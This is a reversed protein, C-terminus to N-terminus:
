AVATILGNQIAITKTGTPTTIPLNGTYGTTFDKTVKGWTTAGVGNHALIVKGTTLVGEYMRFAAGPTGPTEVGGQVTKTATTVHLKAAVDVINDATGIGIDRNKTVLLATSDYIKLAIGPFAEDVGTTTDNALNTTSRIVLTKTNAPNCYSEIYNGAGDGHMHIYQTYVGPVYGGAGPVLGDQFGRHVKIGGTPDMTLIPEEWNKFEFLRRNSLPETTTGNPRGVRFLVAPRVDEYKFLAGPVNTDQALDIFGSLGIAQDTTTSSQYGRVESTHVNNILSSNRITLYSTNIGVLGFRSIEESKGSEQKQRVHLKTDPLLEGIGVNGDLDVVFPTSDVNAEDEILLPYYTGASHNIHLRATPALIGIGVNGVTNIVFPTADPNTDDEVLLSNNSGVTNVVHLKATPTFGDITGIGVNGGAHAIMRQSANAKFIIHSNAGFTGVSLTTAAYIESSSIGVGLTTSGVLFPATTLSTNNITATSVVNLLTSPTKTGVGVKGNQDIIFPPIGVNGIEEVLFSSIAQPNNIHLKAAPVTTSLGIKSTTEYMISDTLDDTASWKSIYNPTGLLADQKGNFKSWDNSTLKGTKTASAEPINLTIAVFETTNPVSSTIDTGNETTTFTVSKVTGQANNASNVGCIYSTKKILGTTGDRLEFKVGGFECNSGASETAMTIYDGPSLEGLKNSISILTTELTDGSIIGSSDLNSGSYRVCGADVEFKCGCEQNECPTTNELCTCM